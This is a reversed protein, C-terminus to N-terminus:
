YEQHNTGNRSPTNSPLDPNINPDDDDWHAADFWTILYAVLASILLLVPSLKLTVLWWPDYLASIIPTTM